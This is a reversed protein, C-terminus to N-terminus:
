LSWPTRFWQQNHSSNSLKIGGRSRLVTLEFLLEFRHEDDEPYYNLAKYILDSVQELEKLSVKGMYTFRTFLSFVLEYLAERRSIHGVPCHEVMQESLQISEKIDNPERTQGYLAQTCLDHYLHM